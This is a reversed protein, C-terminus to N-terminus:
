STRKGNVAIQKVATYASRLAWADALAHHRFLGRQSLERYSEEAALEGDITDTIRSVNVPSVVERVREWLGSDRIAYEMLEYDMSYDFAIEVHTGSDTALKLLWEGVRVGMEHEILTSDPILGWFDLVGDYRVFDTSAKVRAKGIDTTLDLEVYLERGDLTVLGISLLEPHLLSTFETDLFVIM